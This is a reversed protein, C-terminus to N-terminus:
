AAKRALVFSQGINYTVPVEQVGAKVVLKELAGFFGFYAAARRLVYALQLTQWFPKIEVVEFGNNELFSRITAPTFYTLHGSLLMPWKRGLVIRALSGYDPYNVILYGRPRLLRRIDAMVERPNSLHEIVDWLSVLDFSADEFKQDQLLGSRVDLGYLKRGQEALWRSPEVGIAEFGLDTAAKPFAGGACGVDLVRKATQPTIGYRKGLRLLNKKFTAIREANQQVFTPDEADSYSQVILSARIRPNLYVLSCQKCRVLADFLVHDSSASYIKLVQEKSLDDPYSAPQITEYEASSCAPCKVYEILEALDVIKTM